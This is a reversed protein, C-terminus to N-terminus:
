EAALMRHLGAKRNKDDEELIAHAAQDLAMKIIETDSLRIPFGIVKREAALRNLGEIYLRVTAYDDLMAGRLTVDIRRAGEAKANKRRQEEHKRLYEQRRRHAWYRSTDTTMRSNYEPVSVPVLAAVAAV